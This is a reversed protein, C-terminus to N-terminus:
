SLGKERLQNYYEEVYPVYIDNYVAEKEPEVALYM